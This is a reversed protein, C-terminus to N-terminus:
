LASQVRKIFESVRNRAIPVSQSNRMIATHGDRHTYEVVAKLNVLHSKHVRFFMEPDLLDEYHKLVNSDSMSTGDNMHFIVCSRAAEISTIDEVNIIHFGRAHTITLRGTYPDPEGKLSDSLNRLTTMYDDFVAPEEDIINYASLLKETATRLDQIDVPKLIYHIANAKFAKFAYDKFATVFVVMFRNEPIDELLEFGESGSPMRIDLFVVKPTHKKIEVRAEKVSSATSLVEIEPCYEELLMRLNERAHEEDDVILAGLKM